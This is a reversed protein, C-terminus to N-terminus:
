IYRATRRHVMKLRRINVQTHPNWVISAYEVLSRVLTFYAQQQHRYSWYQSKKASFWHNQKGQQLETYSHGVQPRRYNNEVDWAPVPFGFTEFGSCCIRIKVLLKRSIRALLLRVCSTWSGVLFILAINIDWLAVNQSTM